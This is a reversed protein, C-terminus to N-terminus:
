YKDVIWSSVRKCMDLLSGVESPSRHDLRKINESSPHRSGNLYISLIYALDFSFLLQEGIEVMNLRMGVYYKAHSCVKGLDKACQVALDLGNNDFIGARQISTPVLLMRLAGALTEISKSLCALAPDQNPDLGTNYIPLPSYGNVSCACYYLEGRGSMNEALTFGFDSHHQHSSLAEGNGMTVNLISDQENVTKSIADYQLGGEEFFCSAMLLTSRLHRTEFPPDGSQWTEEETFGNPFVGLTTVDSAGLGIHQAVLSLAKGLALRASIYRLTETPFLSAVPDPPNDQKTSGTIETGTASHVGNQEVNTLAKQRCHFIGYREEAMEVARRGVRVAKALDATDSENGSVYTQSYLRDILFTVSYIMGDILMTEPMNNSHAMSEGGQHNMRGDGRQNEDLIDTALEWLGARGLRLSVLIDRTRSSLANCRSYSRSISDLMRRYKKSLPPLNPCGFVLWISLAILPSMDRLHGFGKRESEKIDQGNDIIEGAPSHIGGAEDNVVSREEMDNEEDSESQSESALKTGDVNIVGCLMNHLLGYLCQWNEQQLRFIGVGNEERDKKEGLRVAEGIITPDSSLLGRVELADTDFKEDDCGDVDGGGEEVEM